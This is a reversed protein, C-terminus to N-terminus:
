AAEAMMSSILRCHLHSVDMFTHKSSWRRADARKEVAKSRRIVRQPWVTVPRRHLKVAREAHSGNASVTRNTVGNVLVHWSLAHAEPEHGRSAEVARVTEVNLREARLASTKTV